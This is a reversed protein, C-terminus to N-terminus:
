SMNPSGTNLQTGVISAIQMSMVICKRRAELLAKDNSRRHQGCDFNM